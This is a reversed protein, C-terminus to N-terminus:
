RMMLLTSLPLSVIRPDDTGPDDLLIVAKTGHVTTRNPIGDVLTPLQAM